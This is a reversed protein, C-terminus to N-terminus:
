ELEALLAVAQGTNRHSVVMALPSAVPRPDRSVNVPCRPDPTDFNRTGPIKGHQLSILGVALDVAGSAAGCHGYYSKLGAVPVDGLVDRVAQAEFRDEHIGSTGHAFVVGVDQASVGGASLTAECAQRVAQGTPRYNFSSSEFRRAYGRFSALPRAGRDAATRRRELVLFAAAEAGVIGDRDADFPRSASEPDATRASLRDTSHWLLDMLELTTSVGGAVVVDAHGRAILDVAEIVALLGSVEGAVISNTPGRADHAIGVHCPTMNPLYKLMWLPFMESLGATGWRTFDFGGHGDDCAHCASALEQVNPAFMNSGSVVGLREPDPAAADLGAHQWALEAASFGLETERSMVKLAKRPKVYQKPDLDLVRGGIPRPFGAEVLEPIARVGSTGESLARWTAEEGVGLPTVV